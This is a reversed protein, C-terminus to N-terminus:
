GRSISAVIERGRAFGPRLLAQHDCKLRMSVRPRSVEEVLERPHETERVRQEDGVHVGGSLLRNGARICRAEALRHAGSPLRPAPRRRRPDALQLLGEAPDRPRVVHEHEEPRTVDTRGRCGERPPPAGHPAPQHM